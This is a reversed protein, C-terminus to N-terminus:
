EELLVIREAIEGSKEPGEGIKWVAVLNGKALKKDIETKNLNFAAVDLGFSEMDNTIAEEKTVNESIVIVQKDTDIDVIHGTIFPPEAIIQTEPIKTEEETDEVEKENTCATLILILFFMICVKIIKM